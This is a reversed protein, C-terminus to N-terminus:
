LNMTESLIKLTYKHEQQSSSLWNKSGKKPECTSYLTPVSIGLTKAFDIVNMKLAPSLLRILEAPMKKSTKRWRVNWTQLWCLIISASLFIVWWKQGSVNDSSNAIRMWWEHNADTHGDACPWLCEIGISYSMFSWWRSSFLISIVYYINYNPQKYWKAYYCM